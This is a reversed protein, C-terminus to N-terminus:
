IQLRGSPYLGDRRNWGICRPICLDASSKCFIQRLEHRIAQGISHGHQPGWQLTRLILMDLTGQLLEVRNEDKKSPM